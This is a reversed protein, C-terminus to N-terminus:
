VSGVLVHPTGWPAAPASAAGISTESVRRLSLSQLYLNRHCTNGTNVKGTFLAYLDAQGVDVADSPLQGIVNKCLSTDIRIGAYLVQGLVLSSLQTFDDLTVVGYFAVQATLNTQIDLAQNFDAAVAAQTM